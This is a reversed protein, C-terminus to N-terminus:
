FISKNCCNAFLVIWAPNQRIKIESPNDLSYENINERWNAPASFNWGRLLFLAIQPVQQAKLIHFTLRCKEGAFIRHGQRQPSWEPAARGGPVWMSRALCQSVWRKLGEIYGPNSALEANHGLFRHKEIPPDWYSTILIGLEDKNVINYPCFNNGIM